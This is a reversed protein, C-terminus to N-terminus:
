PRGDSSYCSGTISMLVENDDTRNGDSVSADILVPGGDLPVTMTMITGSKASAQVAESKQQVVKLYATAANDQARQDGSFAIEISRCSTGEGDLVPSEKFDPMFGATASDTYHLVKDGVSQDGTCYSCVLSLTVPRYTRAATTPTAASSTATLTSAAQGSSTASSQDGSAAPSSSLASTASAPSSHDSFMGLVQKGAFGLGTLILGAVVAVVIENRLSSSREERDSLTAGPQHRAGFSILTMARSVFHAM